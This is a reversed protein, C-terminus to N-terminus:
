AIKKLYQKYRMIGKMNKSVYQAAAEALTVQSIDGRRFQLLSQDFARQMEEYDQSDQQEMWLFVGPLYFSSLAQHVENLVKFEVDQPNM